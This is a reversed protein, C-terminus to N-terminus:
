IDIGFFWKAILNRDPYDEKLLHCIGCKTFRAEYGLDNDYLYFEM